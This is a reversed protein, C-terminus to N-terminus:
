SREARTRLSQMLRDFGHRKFVRQFSNAYGQATSTGDLVIDTVKWEGDTMHLDYTVKTEVGKYTTTTVVHAEGEKVSVDDYRVESRYIDLNTLSQAQVVEAFVDVFEGRQAPSIDSWHPGLAYKGMAEFDIGDNILAKLRERQAPSFSDNTGLVSKIQRDRQELMRRVQQEGTQAQSPSALPLLFVILLFFARIM